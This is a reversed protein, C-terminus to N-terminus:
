AVVGKMIAVPSSPPNAGEQSADAMNSSAVPEDIVKALRRRRHDVM